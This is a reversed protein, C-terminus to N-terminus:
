QHEVFWTNADQFTLCGFQEIGWIELDGFFQKHSSSPSFLQNPNWVKEEKTSDKLLGKWALGTLLSVCLFFYVHYFRFKCHHNITSPPLLLTVKRHMNSCRHKM